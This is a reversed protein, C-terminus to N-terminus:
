FLEGLYYLSFVVLAIFGVYALGMMLVSPRYAAPVAESMIARLNLAAIIPATLFVIITAFDLMKIMGGSFQYFLM